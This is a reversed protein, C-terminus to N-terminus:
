NRVSVTRQDVPPSQVPDSTEPACKKEPALQAIFNLTECYEGVNAPSLGSEVFFVEMDAMRRVDVPRLLDLWEGLEAEDYDCDESGAYIEWEETISNEIDGEGPPPSSNIEIPITIIASEGPALSMGQEFVHDKDCPDQGGCYRNHGLMGFVAGVAVCLLAVGTIFASNM